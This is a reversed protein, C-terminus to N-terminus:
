VSSKLPFVPSDVVHSWLSIVQICWPPTRFEARYKLFFSKITSVSWHYGAAWPSIEAFSISTSFVVAYAMSGATRNAVFPRFRWGSWSPSQFM